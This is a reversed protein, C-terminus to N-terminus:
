SIGTLAIHGSWPCHEGTEPNDHDPMVPQETVGCDCAKTAACRDCTAIVTM